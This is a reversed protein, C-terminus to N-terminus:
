GCRTELRPWLARVGAPLVAQVDIIEGASVHKELLKFVGWAAAEPYIEPNAKLGNAIHTLFADRTREKVPKGKPTWGEYYLGRVLMPLQAGLEVAEEVTLRDRLSHLVVRLVHYSQEHGELSLERTLEELWGNTTHVSREVPTISTMSM